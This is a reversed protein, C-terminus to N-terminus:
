VQEFFYVASREYGWFDCEEFFERILADNLYSTMVYVPVLPVATEEDGNQCGSTRAHKSALQSVRLLREMHIQFISKGSPLGIDYCGKPGAYGLRTGQGGSM